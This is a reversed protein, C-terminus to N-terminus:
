SRRRAIFSAILLGLPRTSSATKFGSRTVEAPKASKEEAVIRHIRDLNAQPWARSRHRWRFLWRPGLHASNREKLFLGRDQRLSSRSPTTANRKRSTADYRDIEAM